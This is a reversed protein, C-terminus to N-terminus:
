IKGNRKKSKSFKKLVLLFYWVFWNTKKGHVVHNQDRVPVYAFAMRGELDFFWLFCTEKRKSM